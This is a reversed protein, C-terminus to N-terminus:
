QEHDHFRPPAWAGRSWRELIVDATGLSLNMEARIPIAADDDSFWGRFDGSFGALSKEVFNARGYLERGDIAYDVADIEVPVVRTTFNIETTFINTNVMTPAVIRLNSNLLSRALYVLSTGEYFTDVSDVTEDKLLEKRTVNWQQMRLAHLSDVMWYHTFITDPGSFEYGRFELCRVPSPLVVTEFRSHVGIFFLAPNSELSLDIHYVKGYTSDNVLDTTMRITGLRFIWWKVKYQLYEGPFGPDQAQAGQKPASQPAKEPSVPLVYMLLALLLSQM